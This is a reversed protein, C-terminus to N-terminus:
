RSPRVMADVNSRVIFTFIERASESSITRAAPLIHGPIRTHGLQSRVQQTVYTPAHEPIMALDDRGFVVIHLNEIGPVKAFFGRLMDGFAPSSVVAYVPRRLLLAWEGTLLEPRVTIVISTVNLDKALTRVWDAHAGTTLILDAHRVHSPPPADAQLTEALIGEAVMGFDDRLERCLGKIQDDTSAVVIARLRLTATCRELWEPLEPGPIERALGAALLEALWLEPLLSAGSAGGHRPAVYVGGRPRLEVLGEKQLTKYALIVVRYDTEFEPAVERSTPMRDGPRLAGSQIGRLVRGRLVDVIQERIDSM